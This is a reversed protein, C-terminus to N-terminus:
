NGPTKKLIKGYNKFTKLNKLLKPVLGGLIKWFKESTKPIKLLEILKELTIHIELLKLFVEVTKSYLYGLIKSFKILKWSNEPIKPIQYVILLKLNIEPAKFNFEGL